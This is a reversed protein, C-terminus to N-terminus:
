VFLDNTLVVLRSKTNSVSHAIDITHLIPGRMLKKLDNADNAINWRQVQLNKPLQSLADNDFSPYPLKNAELLADLEKAQALILEARATLSPMNNEFIESRILCQAIYSHGELRPTKFM